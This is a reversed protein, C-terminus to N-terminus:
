GEETPQTRSDTKSQLERFLWARASRWDRKVTATSVALAEATEDVSLGGFFRLEVVKVQQPDLKELAKLATDLDLLDVQQLYPEELAIDRVETLNVNMLGSGRKYSNRERAHDVLIRRMMQAAVGFFHARNKWEVNKWDVLRLYAEHVLATSQLTLEAHEGRLYHRALKRLEGYVLPTLLDLARSDGKSWRALLQTVDERSSDTMGRVSVFVLYTFALELRKSCDLRVACFTSPLDSKLAM